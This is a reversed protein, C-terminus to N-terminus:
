RPITSSKWPILLVSCASPGKCGGHFTFISRWRTQLDSVSQQPTPNFRNGDGAPAEEDSGLSIFQGFLQKGPRGTHVSGRIEYPVFAYKDLLKWPSCHYWRVRLAPPNGTGGLCSGRSLPRCCEDGQPRPPSSPSLPPGVYPRQHEATSVYIHTHTHTRLTLKLPFNMFSFFGFTGKSVSPQKQCVLVWM